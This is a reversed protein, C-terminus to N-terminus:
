SEVEGSPRWVGGIVRVNGKRQMKQRRKGANEGGDHPRRSLWYYISIFKQQILLHILKPNLSHTEESKIEIKNKIDMKLKLLLHSWLWQNKRPVTLWSWGVFDLSFTVTKCTLSWKSVYIHYIYLIYTIYIYIYEQLTLLPVFYTSFKLYAYMNLRYRPFVTCAIRPSSFVLCIGM